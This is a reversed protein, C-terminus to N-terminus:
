KRRWAGNKRTYIDRNIGMLDEWDKRSLHEQKKKSVKKLQQRQEKSLYDEFRM